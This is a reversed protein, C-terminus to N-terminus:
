YLVYPFKLSPNTAFINLDKPVCHQVAADVTRSTAFGSHDNSV